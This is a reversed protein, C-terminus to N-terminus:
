GYKEAMEDSWADFAPDPMQLEPTTSMTEWIVRAADSFRIAPNYGPVLRRIKSNDLVLSHAKDGLLTGEYEPSRKVIADSAVHVARLEVGLADAIRGYIQNWTLVDGSTIHVAHGISRPNALLGVFGVAFDDAHTLTWLSTGDGHIVVPRGARMRLLTQWSNGKGHVATPMNRYSYTHSPRVITVPFGTERYHRLLLDECAIKDRSYQWHPNRLPTSETVPLDALPKQYASASSIFIYQRTRGAFLKVDREVDAPTYAIFDAVVDFERHALARRVAEPDGIDATLTEVGAPLDGARRGRNLVFLKWAPDRALLRTVSMSITGTGGIFLATRM